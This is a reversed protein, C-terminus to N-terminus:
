YIYAPDCGSISIIPDISNEFVLYAVGLAKFIRVALEGDEQKANKGLAIGSIGVNVLIPTNPIARVVPISNLHKEMGTTRAGGVISIVVRKENWHYDKISQLVDKLVQPKIALM